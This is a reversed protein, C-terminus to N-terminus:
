FRHHVRPREKGFLLVMFVIHNLLFQNNAAHVFIFARTNELLYLSQWVNMLM